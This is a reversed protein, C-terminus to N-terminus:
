DLPMWSPMSEARAIWSCSLMRRIGLLSVKGSSIARDVFPAVGVAMAVPPGDPTPAAQAPMQLMGFWLLAVGVFRRRM